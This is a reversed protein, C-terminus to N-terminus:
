FFTNTDGLFTEIWGIHYYYLKNTNMRFVAGRLYSALISLLSEPFNSVQDNGEM